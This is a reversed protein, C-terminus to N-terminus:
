LLLLKRVLLFDVAGSVSLSKVRIPNATEKSGNGEPEGCGIMQRWPQPEEASEEKVGVGSQIKEKSKKSEERQM